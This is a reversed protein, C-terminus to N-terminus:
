KPNIQLTLSGVLNTDIIKGENLVVNIDNKKHVSTINYVQILQRTISMIYRHLIFIFPSCYM